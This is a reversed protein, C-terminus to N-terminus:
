YVTGAVKDQRGLPLGIGGRSDIFPERWRTKGWYVTGAVKEQGSCPDSGPSEAKTATAIRDLLTFQGLGELLEGSDFDLVAEADVLIVQFPEVTLTLRDVGINSDTDARYSLKEGGPCM